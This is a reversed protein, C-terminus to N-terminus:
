GLTLRPPLVIKAVTCFYHHSLAKCWLHADLQMHWQPLSHTVVDVQIDVLESWRWGVAGLVPALRGHLVENCALRMFTDSWLHCVKTQNDWGSRM